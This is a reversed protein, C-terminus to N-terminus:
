KLGEWFGGIHHTQDTTNNVLKIQLKKIGDGILTEGAVNSNHFDGHTMLITRANVTDADWIIEVYVDSNYAGNGGFSILELQEGSSPIYDDKLTTSSSVSQYYKRVANPNRAIWGM